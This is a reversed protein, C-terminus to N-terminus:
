KAHLEERGKHLSFLTREEREPHVEHHRNPKGEKRWNLIHEVLAPSKLEYKKTYLNFRVADSKIMESNMQQLQNHLNNHQQATECVFLNRYDPNSRDCDIHHVSDYHDRGTPKGQEKRFSKWRKIAQKKGSERRKKDADFWFTVPEIHM